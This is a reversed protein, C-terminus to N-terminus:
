PSRISNDMPHTENKNEVTTREKTREMKDPKGLGWDSHITATSDTKQRPRSIGAIIEQPLTCPHPSSGSM